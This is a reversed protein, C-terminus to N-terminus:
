KETCREDNKNLIYKNNDIWRIVPERGPNIYYRGYNEGNMTINNEWIYWAYVQMGTTYKGDKRITDSLMPYRTFVYVKTLPYSSDAFIKSEYRKQGHLYSLPLLMAFKEMAIKKAKQIFEFALSFPPNTIIYDVKTYWDMFDSRIQIDFSLTNKFHKNLIRTITGLGCAPELAMRTYVFPENELLQETMSYHTQYCDSKRRQGRNCMSFCKGKM